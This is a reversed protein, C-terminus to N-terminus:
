SEEEEECVEHLEVAEEEVQEQVALDEALDAEAMVDSNRENVVEREIGPLLSSTSLPTLERILKM